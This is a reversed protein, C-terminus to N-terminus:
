GAYTGGSMRRGAWGGLAAGILVAPVWVVVHGVWMGTVFVDLAIDTVDVLGTPPPDGDLLYVGNLKMWVQGELVLVVFVAVACAALAALGAELGVLASRGLAGAVLSVLLLLLAPVPVSVALLGPAADALMMRSATVAIIAVLLGALLPLGVRIGYGYALATRSASRAFRRRADPDDISALEARMAEGWASRNRPLGSAAIALMREDRDSM